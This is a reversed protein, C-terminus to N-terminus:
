TRLPSSPDAFSGFSNIEGSCCCMTSSFLVRAPRADSRGRYLLFKAVWVLLTASSRTIHGANNIFYCGNISLYIVSLHSALNDFLRNLRCNPTCHQGCQHKCQLVLYGTLM